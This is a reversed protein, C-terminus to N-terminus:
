PMLFKERVEESACNEEFTMKSGITLLGAAVKLEEESTKKESTGVLHREVSAAFGELRHAQTQLIM